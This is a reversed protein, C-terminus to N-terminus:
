DVRSTIYRSFSFYLYILKKDRFSSVPINWSPVSERFFWFLFLCDRSLSSVSWGPWRWLSTRPRRGQLIPCRHPRYRSARRCFLHFSRVPMYFILPCYSWLLHTRNYFSVKQTKDSLSVYWFVLFFPFVFGFQLRPQRFADVSVGVEITFETFLVVSTANGVYV